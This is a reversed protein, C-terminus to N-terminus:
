ARHPARRLANSFGIPISVVYIFSSFLMVFIDCLMLFGLLSQFKLSFSTPPHRGIDCLMLFGLLSQFPIQIHTTFLWSCLRLANSFGIPISVQQLRKYEQLLCRRLANSFGIPISVAGYNEALELISLRLANSFGIPISVVIYTGCQCFFTIDCLM